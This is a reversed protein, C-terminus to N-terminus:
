FEEAETYKDNKEASEVKLLEIMNKLYQMEPLLETRAMKNGTSVGWIFTFGSTLLLIVLYIIDIIEM